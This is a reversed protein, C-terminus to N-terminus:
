DAPRGADIGRKGLREGWTKADPARNFQQGWELHSVWVAGPVHGTQYLARTRADIVRFREPAKKLEAAEILLEARPYAEVPDGAFLGLLCLWTPKMPGGFADGCLCLPCLPACLPESQKRQAGKHGRHM